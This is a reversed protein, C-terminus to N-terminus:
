LLDELSFGYILYGSDDSLLKLPSLRAFPNVLKLVFYMNHM